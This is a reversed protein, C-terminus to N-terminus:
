GAVGPRVREFALGLVAVQRRERITRCIYASNVFLEAAAKRASDWRQGTEICRIPYCGLHLPYRAAVDEALDRDELLQFLRDPDFGALAKPRERALRRWGDRSIYRMTGAWIVQLFSRNLPNNVIKLIRKQSCGLILAAGGTTTLEGVRMTTKMPNTYGLKYRMNSIASKSRIPWGQELAQRHFSDAVMAFPMNSDHEALYALEEPSWPLPNGAM